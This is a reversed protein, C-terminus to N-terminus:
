ITLYYHRIMMLGTTLNIVGSLINIENSYKTKKTKSGNYLVFGSTLCVLLTTLIYIINM